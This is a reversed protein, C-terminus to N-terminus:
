LVFVLFLGIALMIGYIIKNWRLIKAGDFIWVPILNFLALWSNISFGIAGMTSLFPYGSFILSYFIIALLINTGPGAASILGNQRETIRGHIIVAGPALIIFGAFSALIGVILMKDDSRFESWAKFYQAVFKHMLEHLLFGIGATLLSIILIVFFNQDFRLGNYLFTFALGIALFSKTLDIIERKSFTFHNYM